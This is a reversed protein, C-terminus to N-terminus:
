IYTPYYEVTLTLPCTLNNEGPTLSPFRLFSMNGSCPGGNQLIRGNLGDVVLVDGQAVNRITVTDITLSTYARNATCTLRCDTQPMTSECFVTNGVHRVLEGHQIGTFSYACLGIVQNGESGLMTLEGASTLVATYLFGDPMALELKGWMLSDLKSKKLTLSRRDHASLFISVSIQRMGFRSNLLNFGTRNVGQYISNEIETGGVTFKEILAGYSFIDVDNIFMTHPNVDIKM